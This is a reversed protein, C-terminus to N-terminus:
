PRVRVVIQQGPQIRANDLDNMAMMRAVTGRRDARPAVDGAISWLSDHAGVVVTVTSPSEATAALSVRAAGWAVTMAVVLLALAALILRGRRTLRM